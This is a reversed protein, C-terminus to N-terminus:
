ILHCFWVQQSIHCPIMNIAVWEACKGNFFLQEQSRPAYKQRKSSSLISIPGKGRLLQNKSNNEDFLVAINIDLHFWELHIRINSLDTGLILGNKSSQFGKTLRASFDKSAVNASKTVSLRKINVYTYIPGESTGKYYNFQCCHAYQTSKDM